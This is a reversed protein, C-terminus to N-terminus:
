HRLDAFLISSLKEPTRRQSLNNLLDTWPIQQLQLKQGQVTGPQNLAISRDIKPPINKM